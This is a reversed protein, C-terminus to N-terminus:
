FEKLEDINIRRFYDEKVEAPADGTISVLVNNDLMAQLEGDALLVKQRDIRKLEGMQGMMAPNNFMMMMSAVMQNEAMLQVEVEHDPGIYTASAMMGGLGPMGGSEGEERTWGEMPEPLFGALRAAKRQALLQGAYEVEETAMKFDGARYAELAASLTTEIEDPETAKADEAPATDRATQEEPTEAREATGEEGAIEEAATAEREAAAPAQDAEQAALPISCLTFAAVAAVISKM